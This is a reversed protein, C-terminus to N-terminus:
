IGASILDHLLSLQITCPWLRRSDLLCNLISRDSLANMFIWARLLAPLNKIQHFAVDRRGPMNPLARFSGMSWSLPLAVTQSVFLYYFVM